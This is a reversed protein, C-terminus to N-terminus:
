FPDDKKKKKEKPSWGLDQELKIPSIGDTGKRKSKMVLERGSRFREQARLSREEFGRQKNSSSQLHLGPMSVRKRPRTM